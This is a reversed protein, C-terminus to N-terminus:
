RYEVNLVAIRFQVSIRRLTADSMDVDGMVFGLFYLASFLCIMLQEFSVCMGGAHYWVFLPYAGQEGELPTPVVSRVLIEGDDVPVQYNKVTYSSDVTNMNAVVLSIAIIRHDGPPLLDKQAKAVNAFLLKFGQRAVNVDDLSPAPRARLQSIVPALEPSIESYHAYQSM